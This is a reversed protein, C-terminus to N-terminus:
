DDGEESDVTDGLEGDDSEATTIVSNVETQNLDYGDPMFSLAKM